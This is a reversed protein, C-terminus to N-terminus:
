AIRSQEPAGHQYAKAVLEPPATHVLISQEESDVKLVCAHCIPYYLKGTEWVVVPQSTTVHGCFHCPGLPKDEPLDHQGCSCRVPM